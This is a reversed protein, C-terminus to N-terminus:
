EFRTGTGTVCPALILNGAADFVNVQSQSTWADGSPDLVLVSRVRSSGV